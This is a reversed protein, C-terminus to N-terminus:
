RHQVRIFRVPVTENDATKVIKYTRDAEGNVIALRQVDVDECEIGILKALNFSLPLLWEQPFGPSDTRNVFMELSFKANFVITGSIDACTPWIRLLGNTMQPDYFVGVPVSATDKTNIAYYEERSYVRLPRENGDEDKYRPNLIQLPRSILSDYVVVRAGVSVADTLVATLTVVNAAPTGNITTWQFSGGDLEVGIVNTTAMGDDDDVTISSAGTVAAVDVKAEIVTLAAHDGSPGLSFAITEAAPILSVDRFLWLGIDDIAWLALMQNLIERANEIEEASVSGGLKVKHLKRYASKIIALADTSITTVGSTAM